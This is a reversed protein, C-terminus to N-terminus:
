LTVAMQLITLVVATVPVRMVLTIKIGECRLRVAAKKALNIRRKEV